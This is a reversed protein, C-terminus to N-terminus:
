RAAREALRAYYPFPLVEEPVGCVVCRRFNEGTYEQPADFDRFAHATGIRDNCSRTLKLHDEQQLVAAKIETQNM